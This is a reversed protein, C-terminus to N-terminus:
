NRDKEQGSNGLQHSYYIKQIVHKYKLKDTVDYIPGPIHSEM